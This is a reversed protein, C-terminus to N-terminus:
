VRWPEATREEEIAQEHYWAGQPALKTGATFAPSRVPMAAENLPRRAFRGRPPFAYITASGSINTTM